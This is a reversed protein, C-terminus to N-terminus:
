KNRLRRLDLTEDGREKELKGDAMHKPEAYMRNTNSGCTPIDTRSCKNFVGRPAPLSIIKAFVCSPGTSTGRMEAGTQGPVEQQRSRVCM